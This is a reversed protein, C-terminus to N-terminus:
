QRKLGCSVKAPNPRSRYKEKGAIIIKGELLFKGFAANCFESIHNLINDKLKNNNVSHRRPM